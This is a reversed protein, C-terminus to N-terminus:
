LQRHRAAAPDFANNVPDALIGPQRRKTSHFRMVRESNIEM